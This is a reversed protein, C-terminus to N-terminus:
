NPEVHIGLEKALDEVSMNDSQREIEQEPQATSLHDSNTTPVGQSLFTHNGKGPTEIGLFIKKIIEEQKSASSFNYTIPRNKTEAPRPRNDTEWIIYDRFMKEIMVVASWGPLVKVEGPAISWMDPAKRFVRKQLIGRFPILKVEENEPDLVQWYFMKPLINTVKVQDNPHFRNYQDAEEASTSPVYGLIRFSLPIREKGSQIGSPDYLKPVNQPVNQNDPNM